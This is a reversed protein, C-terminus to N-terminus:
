ATAGRRLMWEPGRTATYHYLVEVLINQQAQTQAKPVATAQQNFYSADHFDTTRTEIGVDHAASSLSFAETATCRHPFMDPHM